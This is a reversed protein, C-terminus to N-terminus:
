NVTIGKFVHFSVTPVKKESNINAGALHLARVCDIQGEQSAVYLPTQVIELRSFNSHGIIFIGGLLM